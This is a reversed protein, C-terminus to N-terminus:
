SMGRTIRASTSTKAHLRQREGCQHRAAARVRQRRRLRHHWRLRHRRDIPHQWQQGVARLDDDLEVERAQTRVRDDTVDRAACEGLEAGIRVHRPQRDRDDARREAIGIRDHERRVADAGCMGHRDGHERDVALHRVRRPERWIEDRETRVIPDVLELRPGRDGLRVIALERRWRLQHLKAIVRHWGARGARDHADGRPQREIRPDRKRALGPEVCRRRLQRQPRVDGVIDRDHEIRVGRVRALVRGLAAVARDFRSADVIRLASSCIASTGTTRASPIGFLRTSACRTAFPVHTRVTSATPGRWRARTM